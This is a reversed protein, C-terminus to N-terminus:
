TALNEGFSTSSNMRQKMRCETRLSMGQPWVLAFLCVSGLVVFATCRPETPSKKHRVGRVLTPSQFRCTWCPQWNEIDVYATTEESDGTAFYVLSPFTDPSCYSEELPSADGKMIQESEREKM